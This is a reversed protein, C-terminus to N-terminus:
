FHKWKGACYQFQQISQLSIKLSVVLIISKLFTGKLEMYNYSSLANIEINIDVIPYVDTIAYIYLM